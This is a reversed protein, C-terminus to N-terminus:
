HPIQPALRGVRKMRQGKANVLAQIGKAALATLARAVPPSDRFFPWLVSPMTFTIGKYTGDPLAAWRERLWQVGARYGCSPSARSKCTHYCIFEQNESAFVEGGLEATRRQLAKDFARRVAARTGDRDWYPRAQSLIQKLPHHYKM